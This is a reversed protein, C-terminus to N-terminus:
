KGGGPKRYVMVGKLPKLLFLNTVKFLTDSMGLFLYGNPVLNDYLNKAVIKKSEIDFYILVNRCFIIDMNKLTATQTKSFLNVISFSVMRKIEENIEYFNGKKTFYKEKLEPPTNRLDPESFLGERATNIVDTNIDTGYINFTIGKNLLGKEKLLIAISYPESGNSSAASWLRISKMNTMKENQKIDIMEPLVTNILAELQPKERFFYTENVTLLNYLDKLEQKGRPDFKLFSIYERISSFKSEEIRKIIRKKFFHWQSGVFALGTQEYLYTRILMLENESVNTLKM